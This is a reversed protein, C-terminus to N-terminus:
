ERYRRKCRFRNEQVTPPVAAGALCASGARGTAHASASIIEADAANVLDQRGCRRDDRLEDGSVIGTASLRTAIEHHLGRHEELLQRAITEGALLRANGIQGGCV